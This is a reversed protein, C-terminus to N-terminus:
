VNLGVERCLGGLCEKAKADPALVVEDLVLIDFSNTLHWIDHISHLNLEFIPPVSNNNILYKTKNGCYM